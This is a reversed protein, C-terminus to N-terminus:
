GDDNAPAPWVEGETQGASRQMWMDYSGHFHEDAFTALENSEAFNIAYYVEGTDFVIAVDKNINLINVVKRNTDTNILRTLNILTAQRDGTEPELIADSAVPKHPGCTFNPPVISVQRM